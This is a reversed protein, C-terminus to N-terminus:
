EYISVFFLSFQIIAIIVEEVDECTLNCIVLELSTFIDRVYLMCCQTKRMQIRNLYISFVYQFSSRKVKLIFETEVERIDRIGAVINEFSDICLLM